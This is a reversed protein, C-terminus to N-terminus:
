RESRKRPRSTEAESGGEGAGGRDRPSEAAEAGFVREFIRDVNRLQRELDFCRELEGADLIKLIGPQSKLNERFSGKGERASMAAGQVWAYAEERTAGRRALALLVEQSYVLGGSSELNRRMAEPYVVLRELIGALRNLMYDALITSDPLIVREASSHSIDREHWLAVNELAVGVNGKIVRALGCIQECGVPNRKHPMASSGKQGGGFPEEAEAVETRQLHRIETATKEMSAALIGLAAIYEAYRDRQIVQNSVPAPTLGLKECVKEEVAPDLHAFTGVAGSIKGVSIAERAREVRERARGFEAFLVAMKLGFTTPEAHVGHTRGICPTKRHELARAKLASRVRDIGRLIQDAAERLLLAQATDVVDSSTLGLHIFRSDAGVHEAVSTLFAIVDHQVTKEIELAREADFAAKRRINEAAQRPIEGVEAMVDVVALEVELWKEMRHADTWIRGMEIRTYRSIM